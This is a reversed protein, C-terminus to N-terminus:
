NKMESKSLKKFINSYLAVISSEGLFFEWQSTWFLGDYHTKVTINVSSGGDLLVDKVLNKGM